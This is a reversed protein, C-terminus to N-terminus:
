SYGVPVIVKGSEVYESGDDTEGVAAAGGWLLSLLSRQSPRKLVNLGPHIRDRRNERSRCRVVEADFGVGVMLLFLQDNAM